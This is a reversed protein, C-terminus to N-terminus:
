WTASIGAVLGMEIHFTALAFLFPASLPRGQARFVPSEFLVLLCVVAMLAVSSSILYPVRWGWAQMDVDELRDSLTTFTIKALFLGFAM